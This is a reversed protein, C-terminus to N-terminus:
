GSIIIRKYKAWEVQTYHLARDQMEAYVEPSWAAVPPSLNSNVGSVGGVGGVSDMSDVSDVQGAAKPLVNPSLQHRLKVEASLRVACTM